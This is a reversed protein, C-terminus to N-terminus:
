IYFEKSTKDLLLVSAVIIYDHSFGHAAPSYFLVGSPHGEPRENRAQNIDLTQIRTQLAHLFEDATFAVSGKESQLM